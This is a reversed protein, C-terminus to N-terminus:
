AILAALMQDLGRLAIGWAIKEEKCTEWWAFLTEWIAAGPPPQNLWTEAALKLTSEDCCALEVHQAAELVVPLMALEAVLLFRDPHIEECFIPLSLNLQSFLWGLRLVEPLQENANALLGEIVAVNGQMYTLGGGGCWPEVIVAVGSEITVRPDTLHAIQKMLGPGRAEWQTRLPGIRDALSDNSQSAARAAAKMESFWSSVDRISTPAIKELSFSKRFTMEALRHNPGVDAALGIANRWLREHSGYLRFIQDVEHAPQNLLEALKPKSLTKERRVANAAYIASADPSAVWRINM